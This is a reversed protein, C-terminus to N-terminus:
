RVLQAAGSAVSKEILARMDSKAKNSAEDMKRGLVDMESGLIDMEDGLDRMPGDLARMKDGLTRMERDLERMEKEIAQRERDIEGREAETLRRAERASLLGQRAALTGQRAGLVGQETGLEGQKQGIEGQRTGLEGQKTGVRGQEDGLRSVPEWIDQIQALLAPDRLVYERGAHRFWLLQEGSQRVRRAREIDRTSGSMTVSDGDRFFVFQLDDDKDRSKSQVEAAVPGAGPVMVAAPRAVFKLPALAVVATALAGAAALRVILSPRSPQNLMVIRRKLNSFSSAAGAAAFAVPPHSVGLDLLLRGYAQPATDLAAIVAADCAAERWFAYERAARRVLPHFFFVSEALAPVCGLWLDGRRVHALEHCLAMRQHELPLQAFRDAPLLVVPRLIGTILPSETEASLRIEPVRRVGLLRALSGAAEQQSSAAPVSRAVVARTQRWRRAAVAASIGFGLMWIVTAGATWAAAIASPAEGADPDAAGVRGVVIAAPGEPIRTALDVDSGGMPPAPLVPLAVPGVWALAIVVKAAACWWLAAKVAAPLRPLARDIVWVAAVLVAGDISARTLIELM